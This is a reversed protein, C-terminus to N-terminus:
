LQGEFDSLAHVHGVVSQPHKGRGVPASLHRVRCTASASVNRGRHGYVYGPTDIYQQSQTRRPPVADRMRRNERQANRGEQPFGGTLTTGTNVERRGQHRESRQRQPHRTPRVDMHQQHTSRQHLRIPRQPINWDMGGPQVGGFYSYPQHYQYAPRGGPAMPASFGGNMGYGPGKTRWVHQPWLAEDMNNRSHDPM